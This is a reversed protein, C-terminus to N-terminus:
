PAQTQRLPMLAAAPLERKLYDLLVRTAPALGRRTPFMAVIEGLRPVWDPMVVQLAGSEIEQHCMYPPLGAVGFGGLAGAKLMAFSNSILRSAIKVTVTEGSTSTLTMTNPPVKQKSYVLLQDAQLAQPHTPYGHLAIFAPSAVFIWDLRCIGVQVLSSDSSRHDLGRIALDFGESILDVTRNSVNVEVRVDPYEDLFRTLTTSVIFHGLALPVSIRVLGTPTGQKDRVAHEGAHAAEIMARAHRYLAHGAETLHITRTSRQILRADLDSELATIRRSLRSKPINLAKSAATFGGTDMLTAFLYLDNPNCTLYM